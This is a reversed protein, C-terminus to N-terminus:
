AIFVFHYGFLSQLFEIYQLCIFLYKRRLSCKTPQFVERIDMVGKNIIKAANSFKHIYFVLIYYLLRM